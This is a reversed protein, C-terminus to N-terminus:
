QSSRQDLIQNWEDLRAAQTKFLADTPELIEIDVIKDGVEIQEVVGIGDTVEGFISYGGDLHEASGLTIYFQSGVTDPKSKRAMSIVGAKDHKLGPSIENSLFYGPGGRVGDPDDGETASGRDPDGGQIMFDEVVRHFTLGDYFDRRALNLFNAVTIPAKTAFMTAKIDGKDTKLVIRIDTIVPAPEPEAVVQEDERGCSSTLAVIALWGIQYFWKM